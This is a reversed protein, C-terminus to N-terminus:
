RENDFGNLFCKNEILEATRSFPKTDINDRYHCLKTHNLLSIKVGNLHLFAGFEKASEM